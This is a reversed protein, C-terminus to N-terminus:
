TSGEVRIHLKREARLFLKLVSVSKQASASSITLCLANFMILESHQSDVNLFQRYHIEWSAINRLHIVALRINLYSSIMCSTNFQNSIKQFTNVSTVDSSGFLAVPGSPNNEATIVQRTLYSTPPIYVQFPTSPFIGRIINARLKHM